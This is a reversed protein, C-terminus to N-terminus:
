FPFESSNYLEENLEIVAIEVSDINKTVRVRAYLDPSYLKRLM